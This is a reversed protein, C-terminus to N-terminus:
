PKVVEVWDRETGCLSRWKSLAVTQMSEPEARRVAVAGIVGSQFEGPGVYRHGAGRAVRLTHRGPSLPITAVREWQLPTNSGSVSGLHRNDVSVGIPHPFDGQVWVEYRPGGRVTVTGSAHGPGNTAVAGAQDEIIGWAYSRDKSYLPEFWKM